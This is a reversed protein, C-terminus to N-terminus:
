IIKTNDKEKLLFDIKENLNDIKKELEDNNDSVMADVFISNVISLGFIGGFLLIIASFIYVFVKTLVSVGYIKEPIDNWGEVTFIKFVTYLSLAPNGFMETNTGKFLYFLIISIIFIFVVFTIIIFISSKLARKLGNLIHDIGYIFRFFRFSKFIRFIRFVLLFSIDFTNINFLFIMLSPISLIILIFDFKNWNSVWYGSPTFHNLKFILELIFIFTISNDIINIFYKTQETLDFGSIFILLANIIILFMIFVNNLLLKKM